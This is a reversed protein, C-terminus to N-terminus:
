GRAPSRGRLEPVDLGTTDSSPRRGRRRQRVLEPRPTAAACGPPEMTGQRVGRGGQRVGVERDDEQLAPGEPPQDLDGDTNAWKFNNYGAGLAKEFYSSAPRSTARSRTSARSTTSSRESLTAAIQPGLKDTLARHGRPVAEYYKIAPTTTTSTRRSFPRSTFARPGSRVDRRADHRAEQRRGDEPRIRRAAQRRAHPRRPARAHVRGASPHSRARTRTPWSPRLPELHRKSGLQAFGEGALDRQGRSGATSSLISWSRTASRTATSSRSPRSCATSRARPQSTRASSARIAPQASRSTSAREAKALFPKVDENAPDRSRPPSRRRAGQGSAELLDRAAEVLRKAGARRGHSRHRRRRCRARNRSRRGSGTSSRAPRRARTRPRRRRPRADTTGGVRVVARLATAYNKSASRPVRVAARSRNRPVGGAFSRSPASSSSWRESPRHMPDIRTSMNPNEPLRAADLNGRPIRSACVGIYVPKPGPRLMQLGRFESRDRGYNVRLCAVQIWPSACSDSPSPLRRRAPPRPRDPRTQPRRRDIHGPRREPVGPPQDPIGDAASSATWAANTRSSSAERDPPSRASRPM